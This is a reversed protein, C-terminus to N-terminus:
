NSYDESVLETDVKYFKCPDTCLKNQIEGVHDHIGQIDHLYQFLRNIDDAIVFSPRESPLKESPYPMIILDSRISLISRPSARLKFGLQAM